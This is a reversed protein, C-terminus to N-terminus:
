WYIYLYLSCQNTYIYVYWDINMKGHNICSMAVFNRYNLNITVTVWISQIITHTEISIYFEGAAWHWAKKTRTQHTERYCIGDEKCHVGHRNHRQQHWTFFRQFTLPLTMALHSLLYFHKRRLDSLSLKMGLIWLIFSDIEFTIKNNRCAPWPVFTDSDM